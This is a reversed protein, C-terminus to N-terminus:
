RADPVRIRDLLSVRLTPRHQVFGLSRYLRRAARNEEAVHLRCDVYGAASLGRLAAVMVARGLGKGRDSGATVVHGVLPAGQYETIAIAARLEDADVLQLCSGDILPGYEGSLVENWVRRDDDIASDPSLAALTDATPALPNLEYAGAPPRTRMRLVDDDLELWMPVMRGLLEAGGAVLEDDLFAPHITITAPAGAESMLRGCVRLLNSATDHARREPLCDTVLWPSGDARPTVTCSFVTEDGRGVRARLTQGWLPAFDISDTEAIGIM